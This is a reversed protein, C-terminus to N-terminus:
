SRDNGKDKRDAEGHPDVGMRGTGYRTRSGSSNRSRAHCFRERLEDLRSGDDAREIALALAQLSEAAVTAAAGKLAHAQFRVGATDAAELWRECLPGVADSHGSPVRQPRYRGTAPRGDAAAVPGGSQFRPAGAGRRAGPVEPRPAPNAAPPCRTVVQCADGVLTGAGATKGPLRENGREPVLERHESMAHATLAIIPIDRQVSEHIHRTAEYGDMVPMECDMLVIDFRQRRVAEVAEAGNAVASARYGLKQLQALVVLRNTAIRWWWFTRKVGPRSDGRRPDTTREMRRSLRRRDNSAPPNLDFVATFWFTSGQGEVSTSAL